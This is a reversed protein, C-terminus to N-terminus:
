DPLVELGQIRVKRGTGSFEIHVSIREEPLTEEARDAWEILCVGKESIYGELDISGLGEPGSVRYLDVHSVPLVGEYVTAMVYSPSKVTERVGLGEAIGKIMTTKGAGLAGYFAVVCGPKLSAALRRGLSRTEAASSTEFVPM